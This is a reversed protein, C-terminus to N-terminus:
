LEFKKLVNRKKTVEDTKKDSLDGDLSSSSFLSHSLECCSLLGHELSLILEGAEYFSGRGNPVQLFQIVVYETHMAITYGPGM